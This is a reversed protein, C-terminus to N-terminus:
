KSQWPLWFEENIVIIQLFKFSSWRFFIRTFNRLFGTLLKQPSTKKLFLKRVSAHVLLRISARVLLRVSSHVPSPCLAIVTARQGEALPALFWPENPFSNFCRECSYNDRRDSYLLILSCLIYLRIKSGCQGSQHFVSSLLLWLLAIIETM